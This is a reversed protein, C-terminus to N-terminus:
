VIDSITTINMFQGARDGIVSSFMNHRHPYPRYNKADIRLSCLEDLSLDLGRRVPLLESQPSGIAVVRATRSFALRM